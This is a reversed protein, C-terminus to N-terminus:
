GALQLLAAQPLTIRRATQYPCRVSALCLRLLERSLDGIEGLLSLRDPFFFQIDADKYDGPESSADDQCTEAASGGTYRSSLVAEASTLLGQGTKEDKM